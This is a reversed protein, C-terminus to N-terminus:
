VRSVPCPTARPRKIREFSPQKLGMQLKIAAQEDEWDLSPLESSRSRKVQKMCISAELKDFPTSPSKAPPSGCHPQSTDLSRTAAPSSPTSEDTEGNWKLLIRLIAARLSESGQIRINDHVAACLESPFVHLKTHTARANV